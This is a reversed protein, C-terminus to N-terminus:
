ERWCCGTIGGALEPQRRGTVGGALEPERPSGSKCPCPQMDYTARVCAVSKEPNRHTLPPTQTANLLM